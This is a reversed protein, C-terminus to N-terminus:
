TESGIGKGTGRRLKSDEGLSLYGFVKAGRTKIKMISSKSYNGSELIVIDFQSLLDENGSGYYCVFDKAQSLKGHAKKSYGATEGSSVLLLSLVAICIGIYSSNGSGRRMKIAQM